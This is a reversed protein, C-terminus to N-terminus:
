QRHGIALSDSTNRSMIMDILHRINSEIWGDRESYFTYDDMYFTPVPATPVSGLNKQSLSAYHDAEYNMLSPVTLEDSHGKTYEIDVDKDKVLSLIWRYYSRANMCGYNLM